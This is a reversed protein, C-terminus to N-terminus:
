EALQDLMNQTILCIGKPTRYFRQADLEPDEFSLVAWAGNFFLSLISLVTADGSSSSIGLYDGVTQVSMTRSPDYAAGLASKGLLALFERDGEAGVYAKSSQDRLLAAEAQKVAAMVPTKGNADRYVGVGLDIKDSRPDAGFLSIMNLLADPPCPTLSDLM